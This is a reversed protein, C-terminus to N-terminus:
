EFIMCLALGVILTTEWPTPHWKYFLPSILIGLAGTTMTLWAFRMGHRTHKTMRNITFFMGDVLIVAAALLNLALLIM